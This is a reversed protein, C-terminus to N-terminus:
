NEEKYPLITWLGSETVRYYRNSETDVMLIPIVGSVRTSGDIYYHSEGDYYVDHYEPNGSITSTGVHGAIIDMYFHGLQPPYQEMFVFDATGWNWLDGAEEDIGAHCFIQKETNYFLPLKKMWRIYPVDQEPIKKFASREGLAGDTYGKDEFRDEGMPWRGDIAMQEHNGRLVVIKSGYQQQLEMIKNLVGYDDPGHIYDGLLILMADGSLDIRSLATEFESLCGHIDSMAYIRM